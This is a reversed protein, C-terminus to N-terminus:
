ITSAAPLTRSSPLPQSEGTASNASTPRSTTTQRSPWTTAAPSLAGQRFREGRRFTWRHRALRPALRAIPLRRTPLAVEPTQPVPPPRDRFARLVEKARELRALAQATPPRSLRASMPASGVPPAGVFADDFFIEDEDGDYAVFLCPTPAFTPVDARYECYGNADAAPKEAVAAIDSTVGQEFCTALQVTVVDCGEGAGPKAFVQVRTQPTTPSVAIGAASRSGTLTGCKLGSHCQGSVKVGPASFGGGGFSISLWPYQPAFTGAWEFDGDWLTNEPNTRGFRGRQFVERV